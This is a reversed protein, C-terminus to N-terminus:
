DDKDAWVYNESEFGLMDIIFLYVAFLSYGIMTLPMLISMICVALGIQLNSYVYMINLQFKKSIIEIMGLNFLYSVLFIVAYYIQTVNETTLELNM